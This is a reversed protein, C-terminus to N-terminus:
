QTFLIAVACLYHLNFFLTGNQNSLPLPQAIIRITGKTINTSRIVLHKSLGM